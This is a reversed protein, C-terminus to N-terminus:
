LTDPEVYMTKMSQRLDAVGYAPKGSECAAMGEKHLAKAEDMYPLGQKFQAVYDYQAQLVQCLEQADDTSLDAPATAASAAPIGALAALMMGTGLSAAAIPSSIKRM